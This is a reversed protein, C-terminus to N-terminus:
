SFTLIIWIIFMTMKTQQSKAKQKKQEWRMIEQEKCFIVYVNQKVGLILAPKYLFLLTLEIKTNLEESSFNQM